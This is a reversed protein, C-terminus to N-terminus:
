LKASDAAESISDSSGEATPEIAEVVTRLAHAMNRVNSVAVAANSVEIDLYRLARHIESEGM